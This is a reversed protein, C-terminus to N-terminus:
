PHANGNMKWILRACLLFFFFLLYCFFLANHNTLDTLHACMLACFLLLYCFIVRQSQNFRNFSRVHACLIIFQNSQNSSEKHAATRKFISISIYPSVTEMYHYRKKHVFHTCIRLPNGGKPVNQSCTSYYNRGNIVYDHEPPFLAPM